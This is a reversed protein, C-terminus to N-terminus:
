LGPINSVDVGKQRWYQRTVDPGAANIMNPVMKLEDPTLQRLPAPAGVAERPGGKRYAPDLYPTLQSPMSSVDGTEGYGNAHTAMTQDYVRILGNKFSEPDLSTASVTDSGSQGLFGMEAQTKRSGGGDKFHESYLKAYLNQIQQALARDQPDHFPVAAQGTTPTWQGLVNKLRPNNVISQISSEVGNMQTNFAPLATVAANKEKSVDAQVATWDKFKTESSLQDPMVAGPKLQGTQPDTNQQVWAQKARALSAADEPGAMGQKQQFATNVHDAFGKPDTFYETQLINVPIGTQESLTQFGGGQMGRMMQQQMQLQYAKQTDDMAQGFVGVRDDQPQASNMIQGQTGPAAYSSAMMALGRDLGNAARDQAHMQMLQQILNGTVPDSGTVAPPALNQGQPGQQGPQAPAPPQQQQQQQGGGALNGLASMGQVALDGVSM